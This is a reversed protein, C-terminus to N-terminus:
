QLQITELQGNTNRYFLRTGDPSVSLDNMATDEEPIAILSTRGSDINVKYLEDNTNQPTGGPRIGSRSRLNTPVACYLTSNDSFTCKEAWTNLGLSRRNEGMDSPSGEVVWLMPQYSNIQGATSYVLQDGNPSWLPQFNFGEVVLGPLNENNKGLPLITKRDMGGSLPDGTDSFAVVRDNPSWSPTVKDANEGLAQFAKVNSGDSNTTVLWRNDPDVAISKALIEDRKPSFKFDEWHKPLSVQQENMFDYVINSGDPFEIVAKGGENNWEVSEAQPFQRDSLRQVNGEADITYFRDDAPDYYNTSGQQNVKPALVDNQTLTTTQTPGGQAVEDAETLEPEEPEGVVPEPAGEQAGPLAGPAEEGPTAPEEEPAVSARFFVFYLAAGIAIASLIFGVILLIRKTRDSM